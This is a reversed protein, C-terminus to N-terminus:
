QSGMAVLGGSGSPGCQCFVRVTVAVVSGGCGWQLKSWVTVVGGSRGCQWWVRVAVVVM